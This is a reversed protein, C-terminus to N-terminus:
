STVLVPICRRWLPTAKPPDPPRSSARTCPLRGRGPPLRSWDARRWGLHSGSPCRSRPASSGPPGRRRQRPGGRRSGGRRERARRGTARRWRGRRRWGAGAPWAGPTALPSAWTPGAPTRPGGRRAPGGPPLPPRRWRTSSTGSRPGALPPRSGTRSTAATGCWAPWRPGTCRWRWAPPPECRPRGRRRSRQSRWASGPSM